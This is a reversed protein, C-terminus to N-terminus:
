DNGYQWTFKDSSKYGEEDPVELHDFFNQIDSEFDEWANRLNKLRLDYVSEVEANISLKLLTAEKILQEITFVIGNGNVKIIDEWSM